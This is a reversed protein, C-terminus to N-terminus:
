GAIVRGNRQAEIIEERHEEWKKPDRSMETIESFKWTRGTPKDPPNAGGSIAPKTDQSLGDALARWAELQPVIGMSDFSTPRKDEPVRNKYGDIVSQLATKMQEASTALPEYEAKKFADVKEGAFKEMALESDTKLKDALEQARQEAAVARDRERNREAVLADIRSQVGTSAASDTATGTAQKEAPKATASETQATGDTKPEDAM